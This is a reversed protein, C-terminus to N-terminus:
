TFLTKRHLSQAIVFSLVYGDGFVPGTYEIEGFSGSDNDEAEVVGVLTGVASNELLYFSANM